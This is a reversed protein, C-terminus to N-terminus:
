IVLRVSLKPHQEKIAILAEAVTDPLRRPQGRDARPKPLLAEFGGKRHLKLWDRITEVAIRTRRSGPILYEQSAKTRLKDTIGPSGPPLHILDAIVGYRFLAVTQRHDDTESM